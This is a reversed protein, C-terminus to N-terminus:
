AITKMFCYVSNVCVICANIYVCTLLYIDSGINFLLM